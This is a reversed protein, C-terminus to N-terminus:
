AKKQHAGGRSKNVKKAARPAPAESVEALALDIEEDTPLDPERLLEEIIQEPTLEREYVSNGHDDLILVTGAYRM